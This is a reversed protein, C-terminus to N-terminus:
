RDVEVVKLRGGVYEVTLKAKGPTAHNYNLELKRFDELNVQSLGPLNEDIHSGSM